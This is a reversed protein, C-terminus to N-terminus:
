KRSLYFPAVMGTRASVTDKHTSYTGSALQHAGTDLCMISYKSRTVNNGFLVTFEVYDTPIKNKTKAETNM